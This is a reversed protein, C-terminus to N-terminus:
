VQCKTSHKPLLNQQLPITITPDLTTLITELRNFFLNYCKQAHYQYDNENLEYRASEWCFRFIETFLLDTQEETNKALNKQGALILARISEYIFSAMNFFNHHQKELIMALKRYKEIRKSNTAYTFYHLNGKWSLAKEQMVEQFAATGPILTMEHFFKHLEIKGIKELLSANQEIDEDMCWPTIMMFGYSYDIDLDRLIKTALINDEVKTCKNMKDLIKQSGSEIGMNIRVLGAFKFSELLSAYRIISSARTEVCIQLNPLHTKLLEILERIRAPGTKGIFFEPDVFRIRRLKPYQECIQKIESFISKATKQRLALGQQLGYFPGITCFSCNFACGRSGEVVMECDEGQNELLFRRPPPLTNIDPIFPRNQNFVIQGDDRQWALSPVCRWNKQNALRSTLELLTEEGEGIVVSDAPMQSLAKEPFLSAFHNGLTIHITPKWNKILRIFPITWTTSEHSCLSIGVLDPNFNQLKQFAADPDLGEIRADIILVHHNSHKDVYAALAGLGLSVSPVRAKRYSGPVDPDGFLNPNILIINLEKFNNIQKM